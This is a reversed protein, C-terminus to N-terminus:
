NMRTMLVGDIVNDHWRWRNTVIVFAMKVFQCFFIFIIFVVAIKDYVDSFKSTMRTYDRRLM